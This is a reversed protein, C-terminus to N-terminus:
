PQQRRDREIEADPRRVYIPTLQHPRGHEGRAARQRAIRGVFPALPGPVRVTWRGGGVRGIVAADRVAADGIFVARGDGIRERWQDLLTQPDAAVSEMAGSEGPAAIFTTFVDGRQADMWPVVFEVDENKVQAALAELTSVGIVPCGLAMSLGQACALGIRLGTFAGPGAAVAILNLASRSVRAGDLASAIEGPLREGHSRSADGDVLFLIDDDRM